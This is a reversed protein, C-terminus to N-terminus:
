IDANNNYFEPKNVKNPAFVKPRAGQIDDVHLNATFNRKPRISQATKARQLDQADSIKSLSMLSSRNPMEWNWPDINSLEGGSVIPNYSM